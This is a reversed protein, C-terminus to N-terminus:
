VTLPAFRQTDQDERGTIYTRRMNPCQMADLSLSVEESMEDEKAIRLHEETHSSPTAGEGEGEEGDIRGSLHPGLKWDHIDWPTIFLRSHYM